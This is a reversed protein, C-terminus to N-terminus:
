NQWYIEIFTRGVLPLFKWKYYTNKTPFNRITTPYKQYMRLSIFALYIGFLLGYALATLFNWGYVFTSGKITIASKFDSINKTTLYTYGIGINSKKLSRLKASAFSTALFVRNRIAIFHVPTVHITGQKNIVAIYLFHGKQLTRREEKTIKKKNKWQPLFNPKEFWKPILRPLKRWSHSGFRIGAWFSAKVPELNVELLDKDNWFDNFNSPLNHGGQYDIWSQITGIVFFGKNSNPNSKISQHTVLTVTKFLRKSMKLNKISDKIILFRINNSDASLVFIPDFKIGLFANRQCLVAEKQKLFWNRLISSLSIDQHNVMEISRQYM